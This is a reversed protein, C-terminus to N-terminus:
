PLRGEHAARDLLPSLLGAAARRFTDLRCDLNKTEPNASITVPLLSM